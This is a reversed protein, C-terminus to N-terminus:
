TLVAENKHRGTTLKGTTEGSLGEIQGRATGEPRSVRAEM